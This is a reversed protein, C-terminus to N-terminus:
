NLHKNIAGLDVNLPTVSTVANSSEPAFLKHRTAPWGAAIAPAAAVDDEYGVTREVRQKMETVVRAVYGIAPQVAFARLTRAAVAFVQDNTNGHPGLDKVCFAAVQQV